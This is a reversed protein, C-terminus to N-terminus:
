FKNALSAKLVGNKCRKVVDNLDQDWISDPVGESFIEVVYDGTYNLEDIRSLFDNLPIIGEGPVYRDHLNRPRKWDALHVLFLKDGCLSVEELASSEWLNYSDACIGLNPHNVEDLLELTVKVNSVITSRNMLSTGLPEFAVKVNQKAAYDALRKLTEVSAKWVADENGSLDAGTNTLLVGGNLVKSFRDVTRCMLALRDKPDKPELVSMSPYVSMVKPQVSSIKIGKELIWDLQKEYDTESFKSEWLEIGLGNKQYCEVDQELTWPKTTIESIFLKDTINSSLNEM